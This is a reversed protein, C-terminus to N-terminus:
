VASPFSALDLWRSDNRLVTKKKNNNKKNNNIIINNAATDGGARYVSLPPTGTRPVAEAGITRAPFADADPPHRPSAAQQFEISFDTGSAFHALSVGARDGCDAAVCCVCGDDVLRSKLPM